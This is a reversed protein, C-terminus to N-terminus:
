RSCGSCMSLVNQSFLMPFRFGIATILSKLAADDGSTSFSLWLQDHHAGRGNEVASLLAPM